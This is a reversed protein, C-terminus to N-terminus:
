RQFKRMILQPIRPLMGFMLRTHLKILQLNDRLYHFHSAGQQLYTVNTPLYQLPIGMWVAKVLIETDFDMRPGLFTKDRLKEIQSLPYIRFGCLGDKITLSLTELATWFDTVKRGYLRAKPASEDFVPKGCIITDPAAQSAALFTVVDDTNHQGDADLQLGHTFGLVSAYQMASLVSAGKGRNHKHEVLHVQSYPSITQKLVALQEADSGDDVVVCPLDLALLRPFFAAFESSHNYHPLLLCFKVSLDSM